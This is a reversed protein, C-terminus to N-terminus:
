GRIYFIPHRGAPSLEDVEVDDVRAAGPGQRLALEFRQMAESDGEAVIEVRGNPLNKVHGGLGEHLAREYAFARFGVRQVRGTVVFRRAVLM